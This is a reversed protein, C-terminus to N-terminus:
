LFMMDYMSIIKGTKTKFPKIYLTKFIADFLTLIIILRDREIGDISYANVTAFNICIGVCIPLMAIPIYKCPIMTRVYSRMDNMSLIRYVDRGDKHLRREMPIFYVTLNYICFLGLSDYSIVLASIFPLIIGIAYIVHVLTPLIYRYQQM